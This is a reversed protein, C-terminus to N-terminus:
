EEIEDFTPLCWEILTGGVHSPLTRRSLGERADYLIQGRGSLIRVTGRGVEVVPSLVDQLGQGHGSTMSTRSVDLAAEIMHADDNLLLEGGPLLHFVGRVKEWHQWRPLTAAIGAGQDFVIVRVMGDDESYEATAWWSNALAAPYKLLEPMKYAHLVANGTAEVMAEYIQPGHEFLQAVDELRRRIKQVREPLLRDCAIMPLLTHRSGQLEKPLVVELSLDLLDFFGLREVQRLVLGNWSGLRVLVFRVTHWQRTFIRDIESNLILMSATSVEIVNSFDVSIIIQKRTPMHGLRKIEEIPAMTGAYNRDLSMVKPFSVSFRYDPSYLYFKRRLSNKFRERRLRNTRNKQKQSLRKM